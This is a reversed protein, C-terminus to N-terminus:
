EPLLPSFSPSPSLCSSTCLLSTPSCRHDAQVGMKHPIAGNKRQNAPSLSHKRRWQCVPEPKLNQLRQVSPGLEGGRSESGRHTTKHIRSDEPPGRRFCVLAGEQESTLHWQGSYGLEPMEMDAIGLFMAFHTIRMHSFHTQKNEYESGQLSHLPTFVTLWETTDLEKWVGHITAWWAGRDIPNELCSYQLPNGNGEGPSRGLGPISGTDGM